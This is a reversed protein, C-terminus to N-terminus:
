FEGDVEAADVGRKQFFPEADGAEGDESFLKVQDVQKALWYGNAVDGEGFGGVGNPSVNLCCTRSACFRRNRLVATEPFARRSNPKPFRCKSAIM